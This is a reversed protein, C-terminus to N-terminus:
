QWRWELQTGDQCLCFNSFHLHLSYHTSPHDSGSFSGSVPRRMALAMKLTDVRGCYMHTARVHCRSIHVTHKSLSETAPPSLTSHGTMRLKSWMLVISNPRQSGFCCQNMSSSLIIHRVRSFSEYCFFHTQCVKFHQPAIFCNDDQLM